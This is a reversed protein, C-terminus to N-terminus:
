GAATLLIDINECEGLRALEERLRMVLPGAPVDVQMDIHFVEAGTFPAPTTSTVLSVINAGHSRLAHAIAHVIGPHDLAAARLAYRMVPVAPPPPSPAVPKTFVTLGHGRAFAERTAELRDALGAPGSVLIMAAFEGGLLTMRSDEINGGQELIWGSLDEVIGPRDTGAGTVVVHQQKEVITWGETTDPAGWRFRMHEDLASTAATAVPLHAGM